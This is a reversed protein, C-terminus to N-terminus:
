SAPSPRHAFASFSLGKTKQSSFLSSSTSAPIATTGTIPKATAAKKSRKNAPMSKALTDNSKKSNGRFRKNKSPPPLAMQQQSEGQAPENVEDIMEVDKLKRKRPNLITDVPNSTRSRRNNVSSGFNIVEPYGDEQNNNNDM